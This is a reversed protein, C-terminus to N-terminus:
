FYMKIQFFFRFDFIESKEVLNMTVKLRISIHIPIVEALIFFVEFGEVIFNCNVLNCGELTSRM